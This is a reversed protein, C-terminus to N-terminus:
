GAQGADGAPADADAEPAGDAAGPAAQAGVVQVAAGEHMMPKAQGATIVVDGEQLGEVVAIRGPVRAGTRINARAAKGERVVYVYRTDGEQLLASEPIFLAEGAEASGLQLRAFLGPRLRYDPNPVHARVRASRSNPDIVPDIATVTGTFAEGPFADVGLSLPQGPAVRGLASEPVSFDVEMPDLRVLNVLAQGPSVVEGVSVERLGLVGAFPATISTKGLQARASAVRAESVGLQARASDVDSRSLLQRGGLDTARENARRANELNAQAELLDARAVSADLSVLPEGAKVRQGDQFHLTVIRGSVEPRMVVAEDARLTGVATLGAQLPESKVTVAEVAMPPMGGGPGGPGGPGAADDGGSCAAVLAALSLALFLPARRM